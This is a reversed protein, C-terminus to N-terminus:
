ETHSNMDVVQILYNLQSFIPIPRPMKIAEAHSPNFCYKAFRQNVPKTATYGVSKM